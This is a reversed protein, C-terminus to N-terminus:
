CVGKGDVSRALLVLLPYCLLLPGGTHLFRLVAAGVACDLQQARSALLLHRCFAELYLAAEPVPARAMHTCLQVCGPYAAGPQGFSRSLQLVQASSLQTGHLKCSVLYGLDQAEGAAAQQAPQSGPQANLEALQLLLLVSRVAAEHQSPPQMDPLPDLTSHEAGTQM